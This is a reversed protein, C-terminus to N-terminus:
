NLVNGNDSNDNIANDSNDNVTNDSTPNQLENILDQNKDYSLEYKSNRKDYRSWKSNNFPRIEISKNKIQDKFNNIDDFTVDIESPKKDTETYSIKTPDPEPKVGYCNAGLKVNLDTFYGGNIGPKGCNNRESEPGQQLKDYYNQQTIFLAPATKNDNSKTWGYNCWNAGKKYANEVQEQTALESDYAKCVSIADKYTFINQDINFVEKKKEIFPLISVEPEPEPEPEPESTYIGLINKITNLCTLENGHIDYKYTNYLSYCIYGLIITLSLGIITYINTNNTNSRINRSSSKFNSRSSSTSGYNSSLPNFRNFM